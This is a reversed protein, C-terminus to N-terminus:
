AVVYNSRHEQLLIRCMVSCSGVRTQRIEDPCRQEHRESEDDRNRALDAQLREDSRHDQAGDEGDSELGREDQEAHEIHTQRAIVDSHRTM